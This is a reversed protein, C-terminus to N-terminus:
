VLPLLTELGMGRSGKILIQKGTLHQETLWAAAEQKTPFHRFGPQVAAHQMDAGCLLVTEFPQTALLEGLAQHEAVSDEGLEFMDGLIVVKEGTAPRAAFSTLAAAMSSPNANYADLVVENRATRVLQSRNNTPAYSALAAAIDTTPVQFHAGVAAAAALNLFNYGGTIQAEVVTGDFLRLVVQPAAELLEAPYTDGATPYTIREAVVQALGPLKPDATNVFATGGTAALFRFLESKGKAIGEEGGFGELHAKGINTILGHTPEALRSLLDIEGQHNAGMEVIAVEHQGPRITLLTLPVGIHNNLNGRTYQVAYRRSLVAYLLEKTTTKGNSGTIGIVPISLQRRHHQALQQLALLPDPAYTYRAPDSAALAEDDVVAYRAGKALAQAAFDRGRFSPGNLAFFLTDTQDQRSDTSVAACQTFRAYLATSDEM